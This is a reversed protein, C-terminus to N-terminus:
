DGALEPRPGFVRLFWSRLNTPEFLIASVFPRVSPRVRGIANGEGCVRGTFSAIRQSHICPKQVSSSKAFLIRVGFRATKVVNYCLM